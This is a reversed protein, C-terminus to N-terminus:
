YDFLSIPKVKFEELDLGIRLSKLKNIKLELDVDAKLENAGM